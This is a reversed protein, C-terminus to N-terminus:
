HNGKPIGLQPFPPAPLAEVMARGPKHPNHCETCSLRQKTGRWGGVHKGHAGINWDRLKEGHCQGCVKFSEDFSVTEGAILNLRDRDGANHCVTCREVGAFHDLTIGRHKGSGTVMNILEAPVKDHCGQCPFAAIKGARPIVSTTSASPVRRADVVPAREPAREANCALLALATILVRTM